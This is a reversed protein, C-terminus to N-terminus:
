LGLVMKIGKTSELINSLCADMIVFVFNLPSLSIVSYIYLTPNHNRPELPLKLIIQLVLCRVSLCVEVEGKPYCLLILYHHPSFKTSSQISLISTSNIKPIHITSVTTKINLNLTKSYFLSVVAQHICVCYHVGVQLINMTTETLMKSNFTSTKM